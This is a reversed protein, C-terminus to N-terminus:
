YGIETTRRYSVPYKRQPVMASDVPLAKPWILHLDPLQIYSRSEYEAESDVFARITDRSKELKLGTTAPM